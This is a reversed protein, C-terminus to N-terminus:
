SIKWKISCGIPHVFSPNPAQGQLAQQLAKELFNINVQDPSRPSNNITGHFILKRKDNFLFCEPTCAADFSKAVLQSEDFLYPCPFKEQKFKLKMNEFSDEPYQSPDNSCILVTKLGQSQFERITDLLMRDSGKVYPCHNCTFVVLGVAADSFFADTIHKGDVNPLSFPPLMSGLPFKESGTQREM